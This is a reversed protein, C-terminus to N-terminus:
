ITEGLGFNGYTVDLMSISEPAAMRISQFSEAREAFTALDAYPHHETSVHFERVCVKKATCHARHADFTWFHRAARRGFSEMAYTIRGGRQAREDIFHQRMHEVGLRNSIDDFRNQYVSRYVCENRNDGFRIDPASFFLM